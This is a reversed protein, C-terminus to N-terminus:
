KVKAGNDPRGANHSRIPALVIKDQAFSITRDGVRVKADLGTGSIRIDPAKEKQVTMVVFFEDGGTALITGGNKGKEFAIDVKAPTVFTSRMTAGSAGRITFSQGETSVDGETHMVWTKDGRDGTFRDVVVFLGPTGSAGSYDVAFSRLSEIGAPPLGKDRYVNDMRMSVVGSGDSFAQFFTPQADGWAPTDPVLVVNENERKGNYPGAAWRDGLGWIRFSGAEPFSWSGRLAERKLYITALFDQSDQWQNRFQYFGKQEDVLVRGFIAAPNRPVLDERYGALVFAAEHPLQIGFTRDGQWGLNRNFFWMVGPLLREPVIGLGIAFLSNAPGSRHRGYTPLDLNSGKGALRMVYHPLFWEASSGKVLDLGMVNKYAQLFPIITLIWPESAYHDGESGFARDGLGIKLYRKVNRVAIALLQESDPCLQSLSGGESETIVCADSSIPEHLIALAALGAAGRARANWNSAPNPNWGRDPMGEILKVAEQALWDTIKQRREQNWAFYCLDYALAVGAVITSHELLRSGPQNISNEVIQRATEAAKRDENLLSLFCHGAAHYGGTPVFGDYDIEKALTARLQALIAQGRDTKAKQRLLPIQHQRFILRPHEGPSVPEHGLAFRPWHPNISGRAKGSVQQSNFVGSYSGILYDRDQQLEITYNAEGALPTWPDPNVTIKVQLSWKNNDYGRVEVTGYHDAQNFEPAYAWLRSDCRQKQCVLDLTIDRPAVGLSSQKWLGGELAISVDGLLGAEGRQVSRPFLGQWTLLVIPSLVVVYRLIKM